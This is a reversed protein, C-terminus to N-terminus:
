QGKGELLEAADLLRDLGGDTVKTEPHRVILVEGKELLARHDIVTGTELARLQLCLATDHPCVQQWIARVIPPFGSTRIPLLLMIKDGDHRVTGLESPM